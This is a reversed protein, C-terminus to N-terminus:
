NIAKNIANTLPMVGEGGNKQLMFDPYRGEDALRKFQNKAWICADLLDKSAAILKANAEAEEGNGYVQCITTQKVLDQDNVIVSNKFQKQQWEGQTHKKNM